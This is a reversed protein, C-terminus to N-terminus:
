APRRGIAPRASRGSRRKPPGGNKGTGADGTRRIPRSAFRRPKPIPSPIGGSWVPCVRVGGLPSGVKGVVATGLAQFTHFAISTSSVPQAYAQQLNECNTFNQALTM